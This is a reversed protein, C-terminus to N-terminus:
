PRVSALLNLSGSFSGRRTPSSDISSPSNMPRGVAPPLHTIRGAIWPPLLVHLVPHVNIQSFWGGPCVHVLPNVNLHSVPVHEHPKVNM